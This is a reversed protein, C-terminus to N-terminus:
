FIECLTSNVNSTHEKWLEAIVAVHHKWWAPTLSNHHVDHKGIEGMANDFRSDVKILSKMEKDVM